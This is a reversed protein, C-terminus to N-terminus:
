GFRWFWYTSNYISVYIKGICIYTITLYLYIIVHIKYTYTHINSYYLHCVCTYQSIYTHTQTIQIIWVYFQVSRADPEKQRVDQKHSEDMNKSRATTSEDGNRKYKTWCRLVLILSSWAVRDQGSFTTWKNRKNFELYSKQAFLFM